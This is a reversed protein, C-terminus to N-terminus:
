LMMKTNSSSSSSSSSSSKNSCDKQRVRAFAHLSLRAPPRVVELVIRQHHLPHRLLRHRACKATKACQTKCKEDRERKRKACCRMRQPPERRERRRTGRSRNQSALRAMLRTTARRIAATCADCATTRRATTYPPCPLTTSKRWRKVRVPARSRLVKPEEEDESDTLGPPGDEDEEPAEFMSFRNRTEWGTPEDKRTM